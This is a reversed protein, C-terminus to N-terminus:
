TLGASHSHNLRPPPPPLPLPNASEVQFSQRADEVVKEVNRIWIAMRDVQGDVGMQENQLAHRVAPLTSTIIRNVADDGWSEGVSLSRRHQTSESAPYHTSETASVSARGLRFAKDISQRFGHKIISKNSGKPVRPLTVNQFVDVPLTITDDGEDHAEETQAKTKNPTKSAQSPERTRVAGTMNTADGLVKTARSKVTTKSTVTGSTKPVTFVPINNARPKVPSARVRSPSSRAKVPTSRAPKAVVTTRRNEKAAIKSARPKSPTATSVVSSADPNVTFTATHITSPTFASQTITSLRPTGAAFLTNSKVPTKCVAADENESPHIREPSSTNRSNFQGNVSKDAIHNSTGESVSSTNPTPTETIGFVVRVDRSNSTARAHTKVPAPAPAVRSRPQDKMASPTPFVATSHTTPSATTARTAPTDVASSPRSFYMSQRKEVNVEAIAQEQEKAKKRGFSRTFSLGMALARGAGKPKVNEKDQIPEKKVPTAANREKLASVILKKEKLASTKTTLNKERLVSTANKDKLVASSNKVQAVPEAKKPTEEKFIETVAKKPAARSVGVSKRFAETISKSTRHLTSTRSKVTDSKVP